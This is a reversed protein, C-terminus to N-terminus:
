QAPMEPLCDMLAAQIHGGAAARQEETLTAFIEQSEAWAGEWDDLMSREQLAGQSGLAYARYADESARDSLGADLCSCFEDYSAPEGGQRVAQQERCSHQMYDSLTYPDDTFGHGDLALVLALTTILM